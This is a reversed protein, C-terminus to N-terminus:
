SSLQSLTAELSFTFLPLPSVSYSYSKQPIKNYLSCYRSFKTPLFPAIDLSSIPIHPLLLVKKQFIFIFHKHATPLSEIYLSQNVISFSPYVQTLWLSSIWEWIWGDCPFVSHSTCALQSISSSTWAHPCKRRVRQCSRHPKRLFIFFTM